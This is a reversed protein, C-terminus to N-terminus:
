QVVILKETMADTESILSVIYTGAVFDLSSISLGLQVHEVHLIPQELLIKGNLSSVRVRSLEAVEGEWNLNLLAGAVLPNPFLTMQNGVKPDDASDVLENPAPAASFPCISDTRDSGILGKCEYSVIGDQETKEEPFECMVYHICEAGILDPIGGIHITDPLIDLHIQTETCDLKRTKRSARNNSNFIARVGDSIRRLVRRTRGKDFYCGEVRSRDPHLSVCFDWVGLPNDWVYSEEYGIFSIVLTLTDCPVQLEIEGDVGTHGAIEPSSLSHVAVGPLETGNEDVVKGRVICQANSIMCSFILFFSVTPFKM